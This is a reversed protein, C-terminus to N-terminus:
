LFTPSQSKEFSTTTLHALFPNKYKDYQTHSLNLHCLKTKPRPSPIDRLPVELREPQGSVENLQATTNRERTINHSGTRVHHISITNSTVHVRTNNFMAPQLAGSPCIAV